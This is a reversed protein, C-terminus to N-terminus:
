ERLGRGLLYVEASRDRSADPKRVRTERCRARLERLFEVYGSGQFTKVLLAGGPALHAQAFALALEALGMARAQDMARIGSINPAMDSLVLDARRGALCKAVLGLTEEERFDGQIFEVGALPEMPLLDIAIVRGAPGTRGAALQSWGGPAAGLDVVVQGAAFLRDREDIQALKFVARSRLGEKAAQKVYKDRRHERLWRRSQRGRSM